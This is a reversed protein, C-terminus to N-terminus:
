CGEFLCSPFDIGALILQNRYRFLLLVAEKVYWKDIIFDEFLRMYVFQARQYDKSSFGIGDPKCPFGNAENFTNTLLVKFCRELIDRVKGDHALIAWDQPEMAHLLNLDFASVKKLKYGYISCSAAEGRYFSGMESSGKVSKLM